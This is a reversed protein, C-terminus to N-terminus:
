NRRLWMDSIFYSAIALLVILDMIQVPVDTHVVNGYYLSVCALVLVTIILANRASQNTIDRGREDRRLPAVSREAQVTYRGSKPAWIFFAMIGAGLLVGSWWPAGAGIFLVAFFIALIARSLYYSTM